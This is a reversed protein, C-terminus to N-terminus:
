RALSTPFTPPESRQRSVPLLPSSTPPWIQFSPTAVRKPVRSQFDSHHDSLLSYIDSQVGSIVVLYSRLDSYLDSLQSDTAVRKPVRSQFDSHHDSLLSYLDSQVGSMVGLYSKLDSALDSLQSDTAVRKPVRSQFDSQLDSLMSYVDSIRSQNLLVRSNAQVAASAADSAMSQIVTLASLIDSDDNDVNEWEIIQEACGTKNVRVQMRDYNNETTKLTLRFVGSRVLSGTKSITGSTAAASGGTNIGYFKKTVGSNFDSETIASKVSAFDTSDVLVVFLQHLAGKKPQAM